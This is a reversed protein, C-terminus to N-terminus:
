DLTGSCDRSLWLAAILVYEFCEITIVAAAAAAAAADDDDAAAATTTFLFWFVCHTITNSDYLLLFGKLVTLM